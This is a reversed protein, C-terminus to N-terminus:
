EEQFYDPAATSSPPGWFSDQKGSCDEAYDMLEDVSSSFQCNLHLEEM